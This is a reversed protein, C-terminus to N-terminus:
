YYSARKVAQRAIKHSGVPGSAGAGGANIALTFANWKAFGSTTITRATTAGAAVKVEDYAAISSGFAGGTIDVRETTNGETASLGIGTAEASIVMANAATTAISPCAAANDNATSTATASVIGTETGGSYCLVAVSPQGFTGSATFDLNDSGAATKTWVWAANDANANTAQQTFGAPPTITRVALCAGIAVLIDGAVTGSPLAPSITTDADASASDTTASRFAVAM